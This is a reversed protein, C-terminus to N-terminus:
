EKITIVRKLVTTNGTPDYAKYEVTYKGPVGYEINEDIKIDCKKSNDICSAGDMLDYSSIDIGITIHEPIKLNPKENDVVILNVTEFNSYGNSDVVTYNIHYIGANYTDIEDVLSSNYMINEIVLSHLNENSIVKYKLPTYVDGINITVVIPLTDYDDFKIVPKNLEFDSNNMFDEEITYLYNGRVISKNTHNKSNSNKTYKISIILNEAYLEKTLPNIFNADILKEKKLHALTIYKTENLGPLLNSNKLTYDYSANLIKTVQVDSLTKKSKNLIATVSPFTLALIVALIVIVALLEVLTFGRKKM